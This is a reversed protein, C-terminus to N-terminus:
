TSFVVFNSKPLVVEALFLILSQLAESNVLPMCLVYTTDAECGLLAVLEYTSTSIVGDFHANGFFFAESVEDSLDCFPTTIDFSYADRLGNM